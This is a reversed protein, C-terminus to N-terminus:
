TFAMVECLVASYWNTYWGARGEPQIRIYRGNIKRNCILKQERQSMLRNDHNQLRGCLMEGTKGSSVYVSLAELNLAYDKSYM